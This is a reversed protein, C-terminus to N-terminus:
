AHTVEQQMYYATLADTLSEEERAIPRSSKLTSANKSAQATLQEVEPVDRQEEYRELLQNRAIIEQVSMERTPGYDQVIKRAARKQKAAEIYAEETTHRFGSVLKASAMCLANNDQDFIAVEDINAPDYLAIVKQGVYRLLMDNYYFNNFMCIGNKQVTREVTNGCLLRLADHDSVVRRLELNEMYVQNPSQGNMDQGRSATDHYEDLWAHFASNFEEITPAIEAIKSNPIRMCEPRQKADKGCYTPWMRGFQIEMTGFFREVTKAQGHFPTAYVTNIGLRNVLSHPYDRNFDKSRYDKGNDFYVENPLGYKEVGLRFCQKIATTNPDADRILAGMVKNSRADFFVTLWPRVAKGKKNRVFVDFLHHDSFWIDNSAIDQRSRQMSPLADRFATDGERFQKIAYFPIEKVRRQFTRVSPIDPYVKKTQKHCWQVTRKQQTMYLSYFYEWADPPITSTGKRSFGGRKDVLEPLDGGDKIIRQWAYLQNETIPEYYGLANRWAVFEAPSLGSRRYELVCGMKENAAHLQANTFQALEEEQREKEIGHYRDQAAQPLSELVIRLQRGGRGLGEIFVYKYLGRAARREITRSTTNLLEAAKQTTLLTM